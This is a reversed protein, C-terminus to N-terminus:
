CNAILRPTGNPKVIVFVEGYVRVQAEPTEEVVGADAYFDIVEQIERKVGPQLKAYPDRGTDYHDLPHSKVYEAVFRPAVYGTQM